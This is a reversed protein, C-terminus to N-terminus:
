VVAEWRVRAGKGEAHFRLGWDKLDRNLNSVTTQLLQARPTQPDEPLPNEISECWGAQQFAELVARANVADPRFHKSLRRWRLLGDGAHWDPVERHGRTPPRASENGREDNPQRRPPENSKRM